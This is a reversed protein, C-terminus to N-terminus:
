ENPRKELSLSVRLASDIRALVVSSVCGLSASIRSKDITRIHGCEVVSDKSGSFPLDATLVGVQVPLRKDQRADTLPVVITLPSVSNGVDNQVVICPRTGLKENGESGRLDVMVIDGRKM